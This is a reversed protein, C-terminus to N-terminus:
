RSWRDVDDLVRRAIEAALATRPVLHSLDVHEDDSHAGGGVAGLGDLTPCGAAATLNGDSAGGVSAGGLDGIGVARGSRLALEFLGQSMPEELPPRDLGGVFSVRAGPLVPRRVSVAQDVRTLEALTRARIDVSLHAAAPV